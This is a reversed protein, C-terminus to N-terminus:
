QIRGKNKGKSNHVLMVGDQNESMKKTYEVAEAQTKFLKIAKEGGAFKVAWKGDSRKSVHYVRKGTVEKEPVIVKVKSKGVKVESVGNSKKRTSKKPTIKQAAKSPKQQKTVKRTSKKPEEKQKKPKRGLFSFSCFFSKSLKFDFLSFM